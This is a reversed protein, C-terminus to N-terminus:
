SKPGTTTSGRKLDLLTSSVRASERADLIAEGCAPCFDGTVALLTVSEQNCVYPLDRTDRVLEAANCIPCKM